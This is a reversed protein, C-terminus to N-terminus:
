FHVSPCVSPCKSKYFGNAWLASAKFVSGSYTYQINKIFIMVHVYCVVLVLRFNTVDFMEPHFSVSLFFTEQFDLQVFLKKAFDWMAGNKVCCLKKLGVMQFGVVM